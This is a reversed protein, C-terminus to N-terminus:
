KEGSGERTRGHPRSLVGQHHDRPEETSDQLEQTSEVGWSGTDRIRGGNKGMKLYKGREMLRNAGRM